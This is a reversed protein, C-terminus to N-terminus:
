VEIESMILDFTRRNAKYRKKLKKVVVFTIYAIIVVIIAIGTYIMNWNKHIQIMIEMSNDFERLEFIQNLSDAYISINLTKEGFGEFEEYLLYYTANIDLGDIKKNIKLSDNVFVTVWFPASPISGNNQISIDVKLKRLETPTSPYVTANKVIINPFRYWSPFDTSTNDVFSYLNLPFLLNASSALANSVSGTPIQVAFASGNLSIIGYSTPFSYTFYQGKGLSTYNGVDFGLQGEYLVIPVFGNNDDLSVSSLELSSSYQKNYFWEGWRMNKTSIYQFAAKQTTGNVSYSYLSCVSFNVTTTLMHTYYDDKELKMSYTLDLTGNDSLSIFGDNNEETNYLIIGGEGINGIVLKSNDTINESNVKPPPLLYYDTGWLYEPIGTYAFSGDTLSLSYFVVGIPGNAEIISGNTTAITKSEGVFPITYQTLTGNPSHVTFVTDNFGAIIIAKSNPFSSIYKKGWNQMILVSYSFSDDGDPDVSPHFVTIQLPSSTQILSGNTLEPEDRPDIILTENAKLIAVNDPFLVSNFGFIISTENQFIPLATIAILSPGYIGEKFVLPIRYNLYMGGSAGGGGTDGGNSGSPPPIDGSSSSGASVLTYSLNFNFQVSSLIILVTIAFFRLHAKM